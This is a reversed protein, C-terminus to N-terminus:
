RVHRNAKRFVSKIVCVAFAVTLALMPLLLLAGANNHGLGTPPPLERTNLFSLVRDEVMQLVTTDNGIVIVAANESDIFSTTFGASPSEIVQVYGSLPLDEVIIAQGHRLRFTASGAGDLTLTGDAPASAGSGMIIGGVYHFQTGEPLPAGYEDTLTITFDFVASNSIFDGSVTKSVTLSTLKTPLDDLFNAIVHTNQTISRSLPTGFDEREFSFPLSTLEWNTEASRTGINWWDLYEPPDAIFTVSTNDPVFHSSPLPIDSSGVWATVDGEGYGTDYTVRWFRTGSSNIDYNTFAHPTAPRFMGFSLLMEEVWAVSVTGPSIRPYHRAALDDDIFAGDRAVNGSFIAASNIAVNGLTAHPVFLGGGSNAVNREISGGLMNFTASGGSM